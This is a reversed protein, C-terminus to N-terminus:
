NDEELAKQRAKAADLISNVKAQTNTDKDKKAQMFTKGGNDEVIEIQITGNNFIAENFIIGDKGFRSKLIALNAHGSEKQDLTKAISVIFHGIQGKKISGGIMSSDVTEAGISSRNGQVATWGAIDLESLLTEFQRMVNGEGDWSDKFQKSPVICDIYDILVIDPKFGQAIQKRIYQRIHPITTGDSPFKKLKLNGKRESEIKVRDVLQEKNHKLDNLNIGTWCSLHKRQIVKPNDEFFIQLVNLGENKATNAIKTIMTTNHTVIYDDTVYLHEPNDVMICQATEDHSYEISSIFKNNAYKERNIVRDLKRKIRFPIINLENPFSLTLIYCLQGNKVEGKYKYRPIKTKILCFGGLSLVLERVNNSLTESVTTFQIRGNKSVYGDTDMLGQLLNIRNEISNFLYDKPIFKTASLSEYLGLNKLIPKINLVTIDTLCRKILLDDVEFDRCRERYTINSLIDINTLIEDDKTSIRSSKMYGDGLLVGLVYPHIPLNIEDFSIPLVMPIKYNLQKKSGFTVSNVMDITKMVMFSEDKPLKCRKGDKWSNRNRQNIRNVSWLHEGDCLTSSNDNFTIRYIPRVGQPFVGIVKTPLGDRSIINDGIKLDGMTTWGNPTLIKSSLPQAKGVGFPALIVGLEGKSLGGDMCEDLGKIGTPIPKRFDDCLVSDMDSFVDIGDDKGDGTELAKKLIEECKDYDDIDGKDIIQQIERVSKKLEQQKCFKLAREQIWLTDNMDAEKVHRLQRLIFDRQIKDKASDMLRMELSSMDPVAEHKEYASKITIAIKRFFEDEFYNADMIDMINNAFKRDTLIQLLLRVQFDKGLYGFDEKKLNSM